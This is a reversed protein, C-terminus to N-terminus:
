RMLNSADVCIILLLSARSLYTWVPVNYKKKFTFPLNHSTQCLVGSTFFFAFVFPAFHVILMSLGLSEM